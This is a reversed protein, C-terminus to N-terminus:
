SRRDLARKGTLVGGVGIIAAAGLALTLLLPDSGGSGPDGGTQPAAAPLPSASASASPSGTATGTPATTPSPSASPSASATGTATDTPSQAQSEESATLAIGALLLVFAALGAAIFKVM